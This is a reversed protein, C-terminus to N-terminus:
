INVLQDNLKGGSTTGSRKMGPLRLIGIAIAGLILPVGFLMYLSPASWKHDVLVGALIPSVIAGVRGVTLAWGVGTTRVGASFSEPALTFLGTACAQILAGVAIALILTQGVGGFLMGMSFFAATAGAFAIVTLVKNRFFVALLAFVLAAAVGGLNLLIGSSIGQQPTMGSQVLLRPTWGNAFYFAAMMVFFAFAILASRAGNKGKFIEARVANAVRPQAPPLTMIPPQKMRALTRNIVELANAPRKVLLYEISEPMAALVLVFVIITFIAGVIFAARWGLTSLVIAAVFGGIVGGLPLGASQISILSARRRAPAFEAIVVPISAVLGGIGLGTIVRGITLQPMSQTAASLAMSVIVISLGLLTMRRRGIRDALPAIFASGLLLGIGISSLLIGVQAGNLAWERAVSTASFAMLLLDYGEILTILLCISIVLTQYRSLPSGDISERITMEACKRKTRFTKHVDDKVDGAATKPRVPQM